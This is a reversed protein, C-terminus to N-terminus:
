LYNWGCYGDGSCTFGDAEPCDCTSILGWDCENENIAQYLAEYRGLDADLRAVLNRTCGCSSGFIVQGCEVSEECSRVALLEADIAAILEECSQPLAYDAGGADADADASAVLDEGSVDGDFEIDAGVADADGASADDGADSGGGDEGADTSALDDGGLDEPREGTDDDGPDEGLDVGSDSGTAIDDGLSLDDGGRGDDASNTDAGSDGADETEETEDCGWLALVLMALALWAVGARGQHAFRSHSATKM